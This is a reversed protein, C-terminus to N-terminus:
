PMGEASERWLMRRATVVKSMEERIAEAGNKGLDDLSSEVERKIDGAPDDIWEWLASVAFAIATGAGFTWWSTAAGATLIGASIGLRM